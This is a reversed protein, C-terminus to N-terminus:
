YNVDSKDEIMTVDATINKCRPLASLIYFFFVSFFTQWVESFWHHRLVFSILVSEM